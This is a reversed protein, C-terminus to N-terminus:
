RTDDIRWGIFFPDSFRRQGVHGWDVIPRYGEWEIRIPVWGSLDKVALTGALARRKQAIALRFDEETLACGREPPWAFRWTSLPRNMQRAACNIMCRGTALCWNVSGNRYGATSESNGLLNKLM